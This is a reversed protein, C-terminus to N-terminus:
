SSAKYYKLAEPMWEEIQRIRTGHSPHTSLWEPPAGGGSGKEMRQWFSVAERPDYGAKAMYVLGIHDAESEQSRGFPLLLGVTGGVGYATLVLQRTAASKNQLLAELGMGGVQLALQDTMREGGHRAIAHAIEHAMVVALGGETKTVTLIGTYVAVKGGPLCFANATKDDRILNFEWDYKPKDSVAAIRRGIRRVMEVDSGSKVVDSKALIEQYSELGLSVEQGEPILNFSKRGTVPVTACGIAVLLFLTLGWSRARRTRRNPNMTMANREKRGM